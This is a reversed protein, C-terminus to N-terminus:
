FHQTNRHRDNLPFLFLFLDLSQAMKIPCLTRPLVDCITIERSRVAKSRTPRKLKQKKKPKPKPAFELNRNSPRNSIEEKNRIGDNAIESWSEIRVAGDDRVVEDILVLIGRIFMESSAMSRMADEKMREVQKQESQLENLAAVDLHDVNSCVSLLRQKVGEHRELLQNLKMSHKTKTEKRHGLLREMIDKLTKRKKSRLLKEENKRMKAMIELIMQERLKYGKQDRFCQRLKKTISATAKEPMTATLKLGKLVNLKKENQETEHCLGRLKVQNAKLILSLKQASELRQTKLRNPRVYDLVSEIFGSNRLKTQDIIVRHLFEKKRSALGEIMSMQKTVAVSLRKPVARKKDAELNKTLKETTKADM